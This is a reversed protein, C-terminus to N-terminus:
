KLNEKFLKIGKKKKKPTRELLGKSNLSKLKALIINLKSTHM